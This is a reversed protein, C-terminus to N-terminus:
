RVFIIHRIVDNNAGEQFMAKILIKWNKILKGFTILALVQTEFLLQLIIKIILAIIVWM